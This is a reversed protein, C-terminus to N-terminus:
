GQLREWIKCAVAALCRTRWVVVFSLDTLNDTVNYVELMTGSAVGRWSTSDPSLYATLSHWSTDYGRWPQIEGSTFRRKPGTMKWVWVHVCAASEHRRQRM